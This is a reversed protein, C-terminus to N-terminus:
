IFHLLFFLCLNVQCVTEIHLVTPKKGPYFRLVESGYFTKPSNYWRSCKLYRESQKPQFMNMNKSNQNTKTSVKQMENLEKMKEEAIRRVQDFDYDEGIVESKGDMKKKVEDQKHKKNEKVKELLNRKIEELRKRDSAM